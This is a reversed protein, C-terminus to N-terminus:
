ETLLRELQDEVRDEAPPQETSPAPPVPQPAASVPLPAPRAQQVVPAARQEAIVNLAPPPPLRTIAHPQPTEIYLLRDGTPRELVSQSGSAYDITLRSASDDRGLGFILEPYHGAALGQQLVYKILRRGGTTHLTVRAGIATPVNRLVIKSYHRNGGNNIFARAPGDVNIWVLDAYGDANFDAVLPMVAAQRNVTGAHKEIASFQQAATQILLRGPHWYLSLPPYHIYNEAVALDELGDLNFDAFVAGWGFEYDTLLAAGAREEFRLNGSNHLLSWDTHPTQDTHLDGRLLLEPVGSGTNALFLDLHGDHDYDAAAIGTFYGQRELLPQQLARFKGNGLNHYIQAQGAHQTLVLEPLSDNNLDAMLAAFTDHQQAVGAAATIDTFTNDGNNRLLLSSAGYNPDHFLGVRVFMRSTFCAVLLDVHGDLDIDGAAISLPVTEAAPQINLKHQTFVGNRNAYLYLGSDRSIFLDTNGDYDADVAAAGYTADGAQKALGDAAAIKVFGNDTFKLLSDSQDRGGGIFIEPIRDNDIDLV